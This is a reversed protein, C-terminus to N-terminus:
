LVSQLIQGTKWRQVQQYQITFYNQRRQLLYHNFPFHESPARSRVFLYNFDPDSRNFSYSWQM